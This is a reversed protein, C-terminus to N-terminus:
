KAMSSRAGVGVLGGGGFLRALARDFHSSDARRYLVLDSYLPPKVRLGM